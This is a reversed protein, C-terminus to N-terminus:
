FIYISLVYRKCNVVSIKFYFCVIPHRRSKIFCGQTCHTVCFTPLRQNLCNNQDHVSLRYVCLENEKKKVFNQLVNQSKNPKSFFFYRNEKGLLRVCFKEWCIIRIWVIIQKCVYQYIKFYAYFARKHIRWKIRSFPISPRDHVIIIINPKKKFWM